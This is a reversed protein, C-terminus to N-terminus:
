WTPGLRIARELRQINEYEAARAERAGLLDFIGDRATMADCKEIAVLRSWPHEFAFNGFLEDAIQIVVCGGEFALLEVDHDVVGGCERRPHSVCGLIERSIRLVVDENRRRRRVAILTDDTEVFVAG